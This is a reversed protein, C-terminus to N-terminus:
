KRKSSIPQGTVPDAKDGTELDVFFLPESVNMKENLSPAKRALPPNQKINATSEVQNIFHSGLQGQNGINEKQSSSSDINRLASIDTLSSTKQIKSPNMITKKFFSKHQV